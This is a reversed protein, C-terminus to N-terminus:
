FISDLTAPVPLRGSRSLRRWFCSLPEGLGALKWIDRLAITLPGANKRFMMASASANTRSSNPMVTCDMMLNANLAVMTTKNATSRPIPSV